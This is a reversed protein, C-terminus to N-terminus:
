VEADGYHARLHRVFQFVLDSWKQYDKPPYAWGTYISGQPFSHRYPDPHTSLAKPMFGIEVLPKVGAGHFTDFIRDLIAWDYIPNGDADETYVNTSGWKLSASGDGSTLLNHTRIYVPVPSLAQLERLLKQGNPAYTYNPEDYGFYSWVPPLAADSRDAFVQIQVTHPAQQARCLARTLPFFVVFLFLTHLVGLRIFSGLPVTRDLRVPDDDVRVSHNTVRKCGADVGADTYRCPQGM